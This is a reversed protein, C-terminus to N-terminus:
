GIKEVHNKGGESKLIVPMLIILSVSQFTFIPVITLLIPIGIFVSFVPLIVVLACCLFFVTKLISAKKKERLELCKEEIEGDLSKLLEITKNNDFDATM